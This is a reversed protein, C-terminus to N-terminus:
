FGGAANEVNAIVLDIEHQAVIARLGRKVIERGPKGVIDGIFLLRM